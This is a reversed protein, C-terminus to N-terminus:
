TTLLEGLNLAICLPKMRLVTYTHLMKEAMYKECWDVYKFLRKPFHPSMIVPVM